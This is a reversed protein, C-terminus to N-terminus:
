DQTRPLLRREGGRRGAGTRSPAPTHFVAAEGEPEGSGGSSTRARLAAVIQQLDAVTVLSDGNVDVFPRRNPPVFLQNNAAAEAQTLFLQHVNLTPSIENNNRIDTVILLADLITVLGDDNVDLNNTPNQWPSDSRKLEIRYDEVEGDQAPGTPGL